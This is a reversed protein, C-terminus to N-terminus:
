ESNTRRKVLLKLEEFDSKMLAEKKKRSWGKIQKERQIADNVQQYHEWYRIAVPRRSYTYCSPNTGEKHEWLRRELNNTM